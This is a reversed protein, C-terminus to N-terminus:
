RGKPAREPLTSEFGRQCDFSLRDADRDSAPEIITLRRRTGRVPCIIHPISQRAQPTMIM